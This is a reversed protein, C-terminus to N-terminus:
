FANTSSHKSIADLLLPVFFLNVLLAYLVIVGTCIGLAVNVGFGSFALVSFGVSLMLSTTVIPPSIQGMVNLVLQEHSAAEKRLRIYRHIIHITDDIVVGITIAMIASSALGIQGVFWGWTGFGVAIPLSIAIMSVVFVSLRRYGIGLGVTVILLMILLSFVIDTTNQYSMYATPINIGTVIMDYTEGGVRSNFWALSEGELAIIEASSGINLLASVRLSRRENDLREGVAHGRPLGLEYLLLLQSVEDTALQSLPRGDLQLSLDELPDVISYVNSVSDRDRLWLSFDKVVNIFAGNLTGEPYGSDIWFELYNPGGLHISAFRSDTKIQYRDDFYSVFDDDIEIRTLGILMFLCLVIFSGLVWRVRGLLYLQRSLTEVTNLRYRSTRPHRFRIAHPLWLLILATGILVGIGSFTGLQRFPPADASNMLFFGMATTAGSLLVPMGYKKKAEGISKDISNGVGIEHRIGWLFHMGNATLVVLLVIPLIATTSNFDYGAFGYLGLSMLVSTLVVVSLCFLFWWDRLCWLGLTLVVLVSLPVLSGADEEAALGFSYMLPVEGTMRVRLGPFDHEVSSTLEILDTYLERVLGPQGIPLDFSVITGAITLSESVLSGQIEHRELVAPSSEDVAYALLYETRLVDNEDSIPIPYNVLSEVKRSFRLQEARRLIANLAEVYTPDTVLHDNYETLFYVTSSRGFQAEFDNLTAFHTNGDGLFVRTDFSTEIRSAGIVGLSILIIAVAWVFFKHILPQQNM